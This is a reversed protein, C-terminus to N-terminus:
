EELPKYLSWDRFTGLFADAFLEESTNDKRCMNLHNGCKNLGRSCDLVPYPLPDELTDSYRHANRDEFLKTCHERRGIWRKPEREKRAQRKSM